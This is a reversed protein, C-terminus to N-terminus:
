PAAPLFRADLLQDLDPAASLTGRSLFYSVFQELVHHASRNTSGIVFLERVAAPALLRIGSRDFSTTAGALRKALILDDADAHALWHAQARFWARVFRRLAEPKKRVTEGSFIFGDIVLGEAERSSFLVKAGAARARSAYPEWTHVAGLEGSVLREVAQSADVNLVTVAAPPVGHQDLMQRVLVEGFGGLNTGVSRGRLDEPIAIPPMALVMDAGNSVDSFLVIRADPNAEVVNITDGIAVGIGDLTGAAFDVLLQDTDEPLALQVAVHEDRFYGLQEALLAPYYGPWLDVGIELPLEGSTPADGGSRQESCAGLLVLALLAVATSVWHRGPM